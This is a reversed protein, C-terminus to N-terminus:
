TIAAQSPQDVPPEALRKFGVADEVQEAIVALRAAVRAYLSPLKDLLQSCADCIPGLEDNRPMTELAYQALTISGKAHDFPYSQSLTQRIEGMQRWCRVMQSKIEEILSQKEENGELNKLLIGLAVYSDRLELLAPIQRSLGALVSFMENVELQWADAQPLKAVVQPHHLLQLAAFLRQGNLQELDALRAAIQQQQATTKEKALRADDRTALALKFDTARVKFKAKLLATAQSIEVLDSDVQHYKECTKRYDGGTALLRARGKKILEMNARPKEPADLWTSPLEFPRMTSFAGQFYRSLAKHAEIQEGQRALLQEVPHMDTLKFEDGFVGRYFDWTATKSLSSFDAFLSIASAAHHFIGPANEALASAIRDKDAPHTDFVGTKSEAISKDIAQQVHLPLQGVNAQILRPLDDGLRGEKRFEDLDAYAGQTAVNLFMLQRATTAFADSGALRAEYRDADFEMQRLLFGSVVHGVFMLVWLVKRTLWIFVQALYFVFGLRLDWARAWGQLRQDWEDREYVVRTFWFSIVRIVYSLRMGAGQSFHGFEHALVGAFQRLSLGAVLPLGITLVLDSGAMSLWGRRFSASANVQCDVDIRSPTPAGVAACVRDVFAFLLPEGARTLSRPTSQQVRRAFLPKIMFVLLIAGAVLPGFYGLIAAKASGRGSTRLWVADNMLHYKLAWAVLVILGIYVLPLVIMALSVMALAWKYSGSVAVPAIQGQFGALIDAQSPALPRSNQRAAPATADADAAAVLMGLLEGDPDSPPAAPVEVTERCKPCKGRRGALEDKVRLTANCHSCTVAITM